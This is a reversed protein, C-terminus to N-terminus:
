FLFQFGYGYVTQLSGLYLVTNYLYTLVKSYSFEHNSGPLFSGEGDLLEQDRMTNTSLIFVYCDTPMKLVTLEDVISGPLLM